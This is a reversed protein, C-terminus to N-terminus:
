ATSHHEAAFGRIRNVMGFLGNRRTSSLHTTLGLKQFVAQVDTTLIEGPTKGSYVALLVAILGKVIMAESDARINVVPPQQSEDYEAVLWVRSQCGRVINQECKEAETLEPLEFGLDILFDCRDEWDPLHEFEEFLETVTISM